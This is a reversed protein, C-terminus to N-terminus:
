EVGPIPEIELESLAKRGRAAWAELLRRSTFWQNPDSLTEDDSPVISGLGGGRIWAAINGITRAHDLVGIVALLTPDYAEDSDHTEERTKEDVSDEEEDSPRKRKKGNTSVPSAVPPSPQSLSSPENSAHGSEDPSSSDGTRAENVLRKRLKRQARKSMGKPVVFGPDPETKESVPGNEDAQEEKRRKRWRDKQLPVQEALIEPEQQEQDPEAIIEVTSQPDPQLGASARDRKRTEADYEAVCLHNWPQLRAKLPSDDVLLTTEASHPYQKNEIEEEEGEVELTIPLSSPPVAPSSTSAYVDVSPSYRGGDERYVVVTPPPTKIPNFFAWPKSLDKTTQTKQYFANKSLGLTDRAWVAKLLPGKGAGEGGGFVREVMERVNHAQASSWVMCDLWIRTKPHSIYAVLTKLYPRLYIRREQQNRPSRLLLTGNLDFILLKSQGEPPPYPPSALSTTLYSQSPCEPPPTPSRSPPNYSLYDTYHRSSGSEAM